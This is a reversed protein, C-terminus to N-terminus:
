VLVCCIVTSSVQLSTDQIGRSFISMAQQAPIAVLHNSSLVCCKLLQYLLLRCELSFYPDPPFRSWTSPKALFPAQGLVSQQCDCLIPITFDLVSQMYAYMYATCVNESVMDRVQLSKASLQPGRVVLIRHMASFRINTDALTTM